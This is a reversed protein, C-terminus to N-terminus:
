DAARWGREDIRDIPRSMEFEVMMQVPALDLKAVSATDRHAKVEKGGMFQAIQKPRMKGDLVQTPKVNKM